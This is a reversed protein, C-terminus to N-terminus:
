KLDISAVKVTQGDLTGSVSVEDKGKNADSKMAAAAKSNGAGDLKYVMGDATQIGFSTTTASAACASAGPTKAAPDPAKSAREHCAYDILKGNWNDAYSLVAALCLLVGFTALKRM